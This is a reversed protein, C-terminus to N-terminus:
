YNSYGAKIPNAWEGSDSAPTWSISFITNPYRVAVHPIVYEERGTYFCNADIENVTQMFRVAIARGAAWM